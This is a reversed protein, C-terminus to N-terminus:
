DNKAETVDWILRPDFSMAAFITIVVVAAFFVAGLGASITALNGLQVLAVLVTVVYIDVMSWRGIAETMRYIRTRERQRRRLRLQVTVLLYALVILKMLPVVVSAVFVVLALPWMGHELLYIVGSMITNTEQKGLSTVTMVPLLNAPIYFICAAIM